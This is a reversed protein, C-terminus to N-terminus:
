VEGNNVFSRNPSGGMKGYKMKGFKAAHMPRRPDKTRAAGSDEGSGVVGGRPRMLSVLEQIGQRIQELESVQRNSAEEMRSLEDSQLRNGTAGARDRLITGTIDRLHVPEVGTTPSSSGASTGVPVTATTADGAMTHIMPVSHIKQIKDMGDGMKHVAEATSVFEPTGIKSLEKFGEIVGDSGAFWEAWGGSKNAAFNKLSKGLKEVGLGAMMLNEGMSGLLLIKNMLGDGSFFDIWSAVFKGAAFAAMAVGLAAIGGAAVFLGLARGPTIEKMISVIGEAASKILEGMGEFASKIAKGFAEVLPSLLSLAYALPILAVNLAALLLVGLWTYPNAAAKGFASLGKGLAKLGAEVLPGVVGLLALIPVAPMLGLSGIGVAVMAAAGLLVKANGLTAVGKGLGKLSSELRKGDIGQIMRAGLSGPIMAVLGVSSPILNIAGALVKTGSFEKIGDAINKLKEKFGEMSGSVKSDAKGASDLANGAAEAAKGEPNGFIMGKTKGYIGKLKSKARTLLGPKAPGIEGEAMKQGFVMEKAKGYM